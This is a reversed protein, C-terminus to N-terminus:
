YIYSDSVRLGIAQTGAPSHHSCVTVWVNWHPVPSCRRVTRSLGPTRVLPALTRPVCGGCGPGSRRSWPGHWQPRKLELPDGAAVQKHRPAKNFNVGSSIALVTRPEFLVRAVQSLPTGLAARAWLVSKRARTMDPDLKNGTSHSLATHASQQPSEWIKRLM